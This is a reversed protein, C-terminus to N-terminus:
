KGCVGKIQNLVPSAQIIKPIYRWPGLFAIYFAPSMEDWGVCELPSTVQMYMYTSSSTSSLDGPNFTPAMGSFLQIQGFNTDCM